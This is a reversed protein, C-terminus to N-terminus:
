RSRPHHGAPESNAIASTACQDRGTSHGPTGTHACLSSTNPAVTTCIQVRRPASAPYRAGRTRGSSTCTSISFAAAGWRTAAPLVLKVEHPTRRAPRRGRPHVPSVHSHHGIARYAAARQQDDQRHAREAAELRQARLGPWAKPHVTRAVLGCSSAFRLRRNPSLPYTPRRPWRSRGRWSRARSPPPGCGRAGPM